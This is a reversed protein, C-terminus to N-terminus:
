IVEESTKPPLSIWEGLRVDWEEPEFPVFGSFHFFTMEGFYVKGDVEYFDVRVHPIGHSLVAALKKMLEFQSPKAPPVSANPHGNRVDLHNYEMDFFDFKVEEGEKQRETAVFLMRPEGNFCFFKYDRLEATVSDEMYVEAIIQHKVNKYPWERHAYYYNQKLCKTIKKKAAQIDFNSKDRCIVLGGSDHTCKLVFQNPLSDFDIDEFKDWVGLTPIIYEEGIREAVYQKVAYKDVMTIYEPKRDYLKLWQLKENFTVPHELNLQKKLNIKYALKLFREDSLSKYAGLRKLYGFRINEDTFFRFLNNINM